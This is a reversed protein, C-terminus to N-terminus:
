RQPKYTPDFNEPLEEPMNLYQIISDKYLRYTKPFGGLHDRFYQHWAQENATPPIAPNKSLFPWNDGWQMKTGHTKMREDYNNVTINNTKREM